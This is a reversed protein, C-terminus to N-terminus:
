LKLLVRDEPILATLDLNESAENPNRQFIRFNANLRDTKGDVDVDFNVLIKGRFAALIVKDYGSGILAQYEANVDLKQNQGLLIVDNKRVINEESLPLSNVYFGFILLLSIVPRKIFFKVIEDLALLILGFLFKILNVTVFAEVKALKIFDYDKGVSFLSGLVYFVQEMYQEIDPMFLDTVTSQEQNEEFVLTPLDFYSKIM